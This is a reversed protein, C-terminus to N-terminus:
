TEGGDPICSVCLPNFPKPKAKPQQPAEITSPGVGARWRAIESFETEAWPPKEGESVGSPLEVDHHFEQAAAWTSIPLPGSPAFRLGPDSADWDRGRSANFHEARIARLKDGLWSDVHALPLVADSAVSHL